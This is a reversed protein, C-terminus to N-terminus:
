SAAAASAAAAPSPAGAPSPSASEDAPSPSSSTTSASITSSSPSLHGFRWLLKHLLRPGRLLNGAFGCLIRDLLQRFRGGLLLEGFARRIQLPELGFVDVVALSDFAVARVSPGRPLGGDQPRQQGHKVVDTPGWPADAKGPIKNTLQTTTDAAGVPEPTAAEARAPTAAKGGGDKDASEAKIEILYDGIQVRDTEKIAARGQIRTGNVRIGNYSDLDEIAISGNQRVLRAHRRSVNRETLRITNGEKRGITIIDKSFPVVIQKGADDEIILSFSAGM